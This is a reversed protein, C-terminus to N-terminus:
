GCRRGSGVVGIDRARVRRRDGVRWSARARGAVCRPRLDFSAGNLSPTRGDEACQIPGSSPPLVGRLLHVRRLNPPARRGIRLSTRKGNVQNSRTEARSRHLTFCHSDMVGSRACGAVDALGCVHLDSLPGTGSRSPPLWTWARWSEATREQRYVVPSASTTSLPRPLPHASKTGRHQRESGNCLRAPRRCSTPPSPFQRRRALICPPRPSPLSRFMDTTKKAEDNPQQDVLESTNRGTCAYSIRVPHGLVADATQTASMRLSPHNLDCFDPEVIQRRMEALTM